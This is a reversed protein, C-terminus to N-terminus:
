RSAVLPYKKPNKIMEFTLDVDLDSWYLSDSAFIDFRELQQKSAGKFFPFDAFSLFLSGGDVTIYFGNNTIKSVKIEM